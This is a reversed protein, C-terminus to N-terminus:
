VEKKIYTAKQYAALGFHQFLGGITTFNCPATKAISPFVANFWNRSFENTSFLHDYCKELVDYTVKKSNGNQGISYYFGESDIALISSQVNTKKFELGPVISQKLENFSM